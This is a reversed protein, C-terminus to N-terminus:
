RTRYLIDICYVWPLAVGNLSSPGISGGGENSYTVNTLALTWDLTNYNGGLNLDDARAGNECTLHCVLIPYM